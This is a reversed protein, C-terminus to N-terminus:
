KMLKTFLKALVFNDDDDGDNNNYNIVIILIIVSTVDCTHTFMPSTAFAHPEVTVEIHGNKLFFWIM